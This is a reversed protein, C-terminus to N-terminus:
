ASDWWNPAIRIRHIGLLYQVKSRVELQFFFMQLKDTMEINAM